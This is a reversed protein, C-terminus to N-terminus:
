WPWGLILVDVVIALAIVTSIKLAIPISSPEPEALRLAHLREVPDISQLAEDRCRAILQGAEVASMRLKAAYRVIRHRRTRTLRGNRLEDKILQRFIEGNDIAPAFKLDKASRDAEGVSHEGNDAPFTHM